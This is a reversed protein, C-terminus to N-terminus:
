SAQGNRISLAIMQDIGKMRPAFRQFLSNSQATGDERFVTLQGATVPLLPRLWGELFGVTRHCIWLPLHVLPGPPRGQAQRVRRLFDAITLKEPGGLELTENAFLNERVITLLMDALDDVYIPQIPAQGDGFVPTAPLRALRSLGEWAGSGPGMIITPRVIAYRLGSATVAAEADRKSHAYYYRSVDTFRVAVTSVFLFNRVGFRACQELLTLTGFRNVAFYAAPRARGTTAALHIVTDVGHFAVEPLPPRTLDATFCTLPLRKSLSQLTSSVTRGLCHVRAFEDPQIRRLLRDGLVGSAGTILISGAM